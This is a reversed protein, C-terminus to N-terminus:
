TAFGPYLWKIREFEPSGKYAKMEHKADAPKDEARLGANLIMTLAAFSAGM